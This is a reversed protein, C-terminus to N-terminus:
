FLSTQSSEHELLWKKRWLGGAYGTLDGNGAIIRHCPIIIAIPNAGNATGVARVKKMDGLEVALDGYSKTVGFPVKSLKDWVQQQFPTGHPYLPLNFEKLEGKFYNKVQEICSNILSNDSGLEDEETFLVTTIFEGDSAIKLNGIPTTIVAFSMEKEEQGM